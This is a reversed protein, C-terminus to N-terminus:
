KVEKTFTIVEEGEALGSIIETLGGDGRLGTTVDKTIVQEQALVEVYKNGDSKVARVPVVLVDKKSATIIDINASMGPKIDQRAEDFLVKVQYYVVDSIVTAAPDIFAVHGIFIDDDTFADLTISTEQGLAVKSIDSEPIDVEIELGSEGLLSIVPKTLDTKEGIEYNIKTILGDAPAYITMQDLIAQTRSLAAQAQSVKAQQLSIDEARSPSKVSDLRALALDWAGKASLIAGVAVNLQSDKNALWAALNDEATNLSAKKTDWSTKSSQISTISTSVAAQDSQINTKDADIETQTYTTSAPTAILMEYADSLTENVQILANIATALALKIDADLLSIKAVALLDKAEDVMTVGFDRSNITNTKTITNKAGLTNSADNNELISKIRNLAAAADFLENSLTNLATDRANVVGVEKNDVDSYYSQEDAALKVKLNALEVVKNNYAIAANNATEESVAIDEPSGGAIMKQLTAQAAQLNARAELVANRQNASSLQALEDGAKVQEGKAVNLKAVIGTTEFNLDIESAGQVSGTVSVTQRLDQRKVKTTTYEPQPAPKFVAYATVGVVIVVAVWFLKAKIIKKFRGIPKLQENM